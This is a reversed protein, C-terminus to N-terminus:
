SVVVYYAGKTAPSTEASASPSLDTRPTPPRVRALCTTVADASPVPAAAAVPPSSPPPPRRFRPSAGCLHTVNAAGPFDIAGNHLSTIDRDFCDIRIGADEHHVDCPCRTAEDSGGVVCNALAAADAGLHRGCLAAALLVAGLTSRRSSRMRHMMM